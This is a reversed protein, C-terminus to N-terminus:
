ATRIAAPTKADDRGEQLGYTGGGPKLKLRKRLEHSSMVTRGNAWAIKQVRKLLDINRALTTRHRDFYINDEIGVRVGGGMAIAVAHMSLQSDGIGALSWWSREPLDRIM